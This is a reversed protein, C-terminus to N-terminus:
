SVKPVVFLSAKQLYSVVQLKTIEHAINSTENDFEHEYLNTKGNYYNKHTGYAM